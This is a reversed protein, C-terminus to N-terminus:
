ASAVLINIQEKVKDLYTFNYFATIKGDVESERYIGIDDCFLGHGRIYRFHVLEQVIKLHEIYENQLALGM